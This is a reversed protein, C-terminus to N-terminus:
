NPKFVIKVVKILHILLDVPLFFTGKVDLVRLKLKWRCLHKREGEADGRTWMRAAVFSTNEEQRLKRGEGTSQSWGAERELVQEPFELSHGKGQSQEHLM